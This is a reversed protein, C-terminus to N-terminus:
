RVRLRRGVYRERLVFPPPAERIRKKLSSQSALVDTNADILEDADDFHQLLDFALEAELAYVGDRIADELRREANPLTEFVFDPEEITGVVGDRGEVQQETVPHLDILTGGHVLLEAAHSLAHV